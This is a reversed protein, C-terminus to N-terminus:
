YRHDRHRRQELPEREQKRRETADVTAWHTKERAENVALARGEVVAGDLAKIAGDAEEDDTMEVFAFGRPSGTDRDNVMTVTSVTGHARFLERVQDETTTIDLNGVFINKM